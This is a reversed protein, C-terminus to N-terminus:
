DPVFRVEPWFPVVEKQKRQTTEEALMGTGVM